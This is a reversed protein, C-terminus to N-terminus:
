GFFPINNERIYKIASIKGEMGRDGFGPAVILGKLGALKEPANNDNIEEAHMWKVNVKCLKKAGAHIIAESISKYADQLEVYKGALGITIQDISSM